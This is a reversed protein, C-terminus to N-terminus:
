LMVKKASNKLENIFQAVFQSGLAYPICDQLTMEPVLWRTLLWTTGIALAATYVVPQVPFDGPLYKKIYAVLPVIVGGAVIPWILNLSETEM